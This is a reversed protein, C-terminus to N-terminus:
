HMHLVMLGMLDFGVMVLMFAIAVFLIGRQWARGLALFCDALSGQKVATCTQSQVYLNSTMTGSLRRLQKNVALVRDSIAEEFSTHLEEENLQRYIPLVVAMPTTAYRDEMTAADFTVCRNDLETDAPNISTSIM